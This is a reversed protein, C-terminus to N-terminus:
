IMPSRNTPVPTAMFDALWALAATLDQPAFGVAWIAAHLQGRQTRAAVLECMAVTREARQETTLDELLYPM